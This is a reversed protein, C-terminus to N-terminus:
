EKILNDVVIEYETSAQGTLGDVVIFKFAIKCNHPYINGWVNNYMGSLSIGFGGPNQASNLVTIIKYMNKQIKCIGRSIMPTAYIILYQNRELDPEFTLIMDQHDYDFNVEVKAFDLPNPKNNFGPFDKILTLGLNQIRLNIQM